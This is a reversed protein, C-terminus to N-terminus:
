AIVPAHDRGPYRMRLDHFKWASSLVACGTNSPVGSTDTFEQQGAFINRCSFGLFGAATPIIRVTATESSIASIRLTLQSLQLVPLRPKTAERLRTRILRAKPATATATIATRM